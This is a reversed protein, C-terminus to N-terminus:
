AALGTIFIKVGVRPVLSTITLNNADVGDVDLNIQNGTGGPLYARINFADKDVLGLNHAVNLPVLAALDVTAFYAVTGAAAVARTLPKVLLALETESSNLVEILESNGGLLNMEGVIELTIGPAATFAAMGAPGAYLFREGARLSSLTFDFDVANVDLDTRYKAQTVFKKSSSDFQYISVLGTSNEALSVSLGNVANLEPGVLLALESEIADLEARTKLEFKAGLIQASRGFDLDVDQLIKM